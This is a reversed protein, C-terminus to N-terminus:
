VNGNVLTLKVEFASLGADVSRDFASRGEPAFIRAGIDDTNRRGGAVLSEPVGQFCVPLREARRWTWM